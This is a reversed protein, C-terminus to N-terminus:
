GSVAQPHKSHNRYGVLKIEGDQSCHLVSCASNEVGKGEVMAAMTLYPVGGFVNVENVHAHGQFVAAVKGSDMIIKRVAKGSSVSHLSSPPQDIRQHVFVLSPLDTDALDQELWDRQALPIETDTWVYNGSDYPTEDRRYCADLFVLHWGNIDMSSHAQAQGVESLFDAKSMAALCHNGLVYQTPVGAMKFESNITKLFGLEIERSTNAPSDILDGCEVALDIGERRFIATADRMKSISERYHRSGRTDADAYHIDTILGIKLEGPKEVHGAPARGAFLTVAAATGGVLFDRRSLSM